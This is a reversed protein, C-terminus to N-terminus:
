KRGATLKQQISIGAVSCNFQLQRCKALEYDKEWESWQCGERSGEIIQATSWVRFVSCQQLHSGLTHTHTHTHLAHTHTCTNNQMWATTWRITIGARTVKNSSNYVNNNALANSMGGIPSRTARLQSRARVAKLSFYAVSTLRAVLWYMQLKNCAHTHTRAHTHM